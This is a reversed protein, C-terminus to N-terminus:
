GEKLIRKIEDADRVVYCEAGADEQEQIFDRQQDSLQGNQPNKIEIWIVRWADFADHNTNILVLFDLTGPRHLKVMRKTGDANLALIKGSNMRFWQCKGQNQYVTLLDEVASKVSAESTM